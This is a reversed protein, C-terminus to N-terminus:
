SRIERGRRLVLLALSGLGFVAASPTPVPIVGAEVLEDHSAFGFEVGGYLNNEIGQTFFDGQDNYVFVLSIPDEGIAGIDDILPDADADAVALSDGYTFPSVNSFYSSVSGLDDILRAVDSEATYHGLLAYEHGVQAAVPSDLDYFEWSEDVDAVDTVSAVIEGTTLNYLSVTETAGTAGSIKGLETFYYGAEDVVFSYGATIESRLNPDPSDGGVNNSPIIYGSDGTVDVIIRTSAALLESSIALPAVASAAYCLHKIMRRQKM